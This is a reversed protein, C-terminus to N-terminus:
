FQYMHSTRNHTITGNRKLASLVGQVRHKWRPYKTKRTKTHPKWDDSNLRFYQQIMDHIKTVSVITGPEIHNDIFNRILTSTLM